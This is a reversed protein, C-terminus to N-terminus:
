NESTSGHDTNFGNVLERLSECPQHRWSNSQSSLVELGVKAINQCVSQTAEVKDRAIFEIDLAHHQTPSAFPDLLEFLTKGIQFRTLPRRQLGSIETACAWQRGDRSVDKLTGHRVVRAAMTERSHRKRDTVEGRHPRFRNKIEPIGQWSGHAAM